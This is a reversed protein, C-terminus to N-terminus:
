TPPSFATVSEVYRGLRFAPAVPDRATFVVYPQEGGVDFIALVMHAQIPDPRGVEVRSNRGGLRCDLGFIRQAAPRQGTAHGAAQRLRGYAAEPRGHGPEVGPVFFARATPVCTRLARRPSRRPTPQQKTAM